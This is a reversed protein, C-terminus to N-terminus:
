STKWDIALPKNNVTNEIPVMEARAYHAAFIVALAQTFFAWDLISSVELPAETICRGLILIFIALILGRSQKFYKLAYKFLVVLYVLLLMLGLLGSKGLTNIFQNHAQGVYMMNLKWRYELGWMGPGYGFVPNQYFEKLTLDWILTRGTLNTLGKDELLSDGLGHSLIAVATVALLTLSFVVPLLTSKNRGARSQLISTNYPIFVLLFQVVAIVWATKSQALVFAVFASPLIIWRLWRRSPFYLELLMLLLGIPGLANAHGTVGFLRFSLGPVGDYPRLVAFDPAVVAAILSGLAPVLLILKLHLTFRAMDLHTFYYMALLVIPVYLIKYSFEPQTAGVAGVLAIGLLYALFAIAISTAPDRVRTKRLVGWCRMIEAFSFGVLFLTILRSAWFSGAVDDYVVWTLEHALDLSRKTLVVHSVEGFCISWLIILLKTTDNWKHAVRYMVFIGIPGALGLLIAIVFPAATFVIPLITELM